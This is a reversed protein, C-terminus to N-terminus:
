LGIEKQLQEKVVTLYQQYFQIFIRRIEQLTSAAVAEDPEFTHHITRALVDVSEELSLSYQQQVHEPLYRKVSMFGIIIATYTYRQMRISMDTRVIGKGRMVEFWEESAVAKSQVLESMVHHDSHLLEGLIEADGLYLATILPRSMVVYISHKTQNRLLFGEPDNEMREFMEYGADLAERLFLAIFLDERNKWHLYITGKAVRAQKAIDDITTKKYGWRKVLDGAADLIRHAREQRKSREEVQLVREIEQNQGALNVRGRERKFMTVLYYKETM